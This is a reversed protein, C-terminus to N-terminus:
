KPNNNVFKIPLNYQVRRLEGKHSGPLWKPMAAVVRLAEADFAPGGPASRIVKIGSLSGDKEVVMTIYCTNRGELTVGKPYQINAQFYEVMMEDGGPFAPMKDVIAFVPEQEQAFTATTIFLTILLFLNKMPYKIQM